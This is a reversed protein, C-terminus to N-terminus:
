EKEAIEIKAEKEVELDQKVPSSEASVPPETVLEWGQTLLGLQAIAMWVFFVTLALVLFHMYTPLNRKAAELNTHIQLLSQQYGEIVNDFESITSEIGSVSEAMVSLDAEFTELNSSAQDLNEQLNSFSAPLDNLSDAVQGLSDSLPVEPNYNLSSGILPLSGLTSLLSDIVKASQQASKLSTSAAEIAKPLDSEMISGIQDVVPTASEITKATTLITTELSSITQVSIKLADRTVILGQSTTDLTQSILDISNQLSNIVNEEIRWIYVISAISFVVGVVAAVLLLVGILKRFILMKERRGIDEQLIILAAPIKGNYHIKWEVQFNKHYLM